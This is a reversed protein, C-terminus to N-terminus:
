RRKVLAIWHGAGPAQLRLQGVANRQPTAAVTWKASLVDLWSVQFSAETGGALGEEVTLVVSGGDPFYVAFEKGPIGQCYAENEERETLLDNRPAAEFFTMRDSLRRMGCIVARAQENLGIGSAPRHFRVAASGFLVSRIFKAIGEDADGGHRGEDSGYTKVNNVPRLHGGRRLRDIQRLGNDWHAQGRQHNNQSIEVFEYLEPHDFTERHTIHDLDHPDWMETCYVVKGAEAARKKVYTAWFKGWEATVSTENDMCYLINGYQLSYSLLKDVFRQQFGLVPINHHQSPISWFFPNDTYVPHTSVEVPLDTREATYNGNNAPNFPNILWNDRYFDFTAWIEIQVIIGRESTLRLLREFRDWYEDNWRNLDYQKKEGDFYFPWVNGEDRSSMTNRVYNGGVSALMDLQEELNPVQFLNDEVSGGLLLVPKGRFQWYQPHISSVAIAEGPQAFLLGSFAFLLLLILWSKGFSNGSHHIPLPKM